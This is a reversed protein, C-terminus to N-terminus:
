QVVVDLGADIMEDERCVRVEFLGKADAFLNQGQDAPLARRHLFRGLSLACDFILLDKAILLTVAGTVTAAETRADRKMSIACGTAAWSADWAAPAVSAAFGVTMRSPLPAAPGAPRGPDCPTMPM